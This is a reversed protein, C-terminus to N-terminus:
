AAVGANFPYADASPSTAERRATAFHQAACRRMAAARSLCEAKYRGTSRAAWALETKAQEVRFLALRTMDYRLQRAANM